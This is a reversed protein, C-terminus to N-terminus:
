NEANVHEEVGQRCDPARRGRQPHHPVEQQGDQCEAPHDGGARAYAPERRQHYERLQAAVKQYLVVLNKDM